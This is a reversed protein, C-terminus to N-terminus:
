GGGTSEPPEDDFGVTGESELAECEDDSYGLLDTLVSLTDQGLRHAHRWDAKDVYNGPISQGEYPKPGHGPEDFEVFFERAALHRDALLQRSNAVRGAPVGADQLLATLAEADRDKVWDSIVDDILNERRKRGDLTAMHPDCLRDNDVVSCLAAWEEDSTVAIAIWNDEGAAKYASHPAQHPQRNGDIKPEYGTSSNAVFFEGTTAAPGAVLAVDILQGGGAASKKRLAALLVGVAHLGSIPDGYAIGTPMPESSNYGILWPMGALAEATTGYAPYEAYPGELGFGPMSCMVIEPNVARIEDYALRLNRMVRPRFNEIVVDSISALELFIRRGDDKDLRLAVNLKNRSLKNDYGSARPVLARPDVIRIIQAGFDGLIRTALPGAWVRTLDLVRLDSLSGGGNHKFESM